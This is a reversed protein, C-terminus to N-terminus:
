EIWFSYFKANKLEFALRLSPAPPHEISKHGDWIVRAQLVDGTVPQCKSLTYAPM